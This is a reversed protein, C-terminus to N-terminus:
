PESLLRHADFALLVFHMLTTSVGMRRRLLPPNSLEAAVITGGGRAGLKSNRISLARLIVFRDTFTTQWERKSGPVQLFQCNGFYRLCLSSLPSCDMAAWYRRAKTDRPHPPITPYAVSGHKARIRLVNQFSPIERRNRTTTRSFNALPHLM